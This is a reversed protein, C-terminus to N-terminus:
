VGERPTNGVSVHNCFGGFVASHLVSVDVDAPIIVVARVVRFGVGGALVGALSARSGHVGMTDDKLREGYSTMKSVMHLQILLPSLLSPPNRSGGKSTFTPSLPLIFHIAVDLQNFPEM